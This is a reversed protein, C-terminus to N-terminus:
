RFLNLAGARFLREGDRKREGFRGGDVRRQGKENRERGEREGEDREGEDRDTTPDAYNYSRYFRRCCWTSRIRTRSSNVGKSPAGM